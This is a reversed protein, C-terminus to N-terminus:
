EAEDVVKVWVRHKKTGGDEYLNLEKAVQMVATAAQSTNVITHEMVYKVDIEDPANAYLSRAIEANRQWAPSKEGTAERKKSFQALLKEGVARYKADALKEADADLAAQVFMARTVEVKPM